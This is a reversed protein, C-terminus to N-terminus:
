SISAVETLRENVGVTDCEELALHVGLVSGDCVGLVNGELDEKGLVALGKRDRRNSSKYKCQV